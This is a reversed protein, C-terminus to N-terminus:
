RTDGATTIPRGPGAATRVSRAAPRPASRPALRFPLRSPPRPESRCAPVDWALRAASDASQKRSCSCDVPFVACASAAFLAPPAIRCSPCSRRAPLVLPFSPRRTPLQRATLFRALAHLPVASLFIAPSSHDFPARTRSEPFFSTMEGVLAHRNPRRTAPRRTGTKRVPARGPREGGNSDFTDGAPGRQAYMRQCFSWCKKSFVCEVRFRGPHPPSKLVIWPVAPRLTRGHLLRCRVM